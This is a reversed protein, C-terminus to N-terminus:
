PFGTHTHIMMGDFQLKERSSFFSAHSGSPIGGHFNYGLFCALSETPQLEMIVLRRLYIEIVKLYGREHEGEM